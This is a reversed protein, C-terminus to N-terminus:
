FTMAMRVIEFNTPVGGVFTIIAINCLGASDVDMIEHSIKYIEAYAVSAARKDARRRSGTLLLPIEDLHTRAIVLYTTKM